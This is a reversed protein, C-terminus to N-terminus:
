LEIRFKFAPVIGIQEIYEIEYSIPNFIEKYINYRNTINQIDLSVIWSWDPNNKRYSFRIDFRFYHPMQITNSESAVYVTKGKAISREMNIPTGRRGGIWLVKCNSGILNTRKKGTKFDKGATLNYIFNNNYKTNRQMRGEKPGAETFVPRESLRSLQFTVDYVLDMQKQLRM